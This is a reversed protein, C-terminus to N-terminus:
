RSPSLPRNFGGVRNMYQRYTTKKEKRVGYVNNGPVKTNKTSRFTGFGMIRRMAAEEDDTDMADGNPQTQATPPKVDRVRDNNTRPTTSSPASTAPVSRPPLAPSRERKVTNNGNRQPPPSRSRSYRRSKPDRHNDRSRDRRSRGGGAGDRDRYSRDRDRSRERRKSDHDREKKYPSRSRSRSRKRKRDHDDRERQSRRSDHGNSRTDKVRARDRDDYPLPSRPSATDKRVRDRDDHRPRKAPPEEM